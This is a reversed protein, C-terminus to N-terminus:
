QLISVSCLFLNCLFGVGYTNAIRTAIKPRGLTQPNTALPASNLVYGVKKVNSQFLLSIKHFFWAYITALLLSITLLFVNSYVSRCLRRNIYYNVCYKGHLTMLNKM